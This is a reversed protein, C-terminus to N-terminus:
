NRGESAIYTVDPDCNCPGRGTRLDCWDDHAIRIHHFGPERLVKHADLLELVKPVYRPLKLKIRWQSM